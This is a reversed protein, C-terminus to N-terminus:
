DTFNNELVKESFTTKLIRSNSTKELHENEYALEEYLKEGPRLGTFVIDIDEYPRLHSLRIMQEALFQIKIPEGMDLVFIESGKSIALSELILLCAEPILMFFRTIDRHTVTVPGGAAIQEQFLPVVSGVSGLVNGFRVISFDTDVTRCLQHCFIEAARKSEGMVSSPNVAKDTSILVFKDVGSAAAQTAVVKTGEYNNRFAVRRQYELMPVHKYAAAHFVIQPSHNQMVERVADSDVVDTIYYFFNLAPFSRQMENNLQYLGFEHQDIVILESPGLKAVQRVLESGISGAGGTILVKKGTIAQSVLEANLTVPKRGLLDDLCVERLANVTVRGSALDMMTPLTQMQIELLDCIAVVERFAKTSDSSIAFFIRTVSHTEIYKSLSQINGLVRVRHIERSIKSPDDDVFGVITFQNRATRHIEKCLTAGAEGAGVIIVNESDALSPLYERYFRYFLRGGGVFLGLLLGYLPLVSRPIGELRMFSFLIAISLVVGVVVAKSIRFFDPMSAFRWICRYVGMFYHVALQILCLLPLTLLMAHTMKLDLKILDSLLVFSVIWALPIVALDYLFTLIRRKNLPLYKIM